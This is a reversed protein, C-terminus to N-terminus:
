FEQDPAIWEEELADAFGEDPNSDIRTASLVEEEVIRWSGEIDAITYNARYENLRSHTHGWHYVGGEVQWSAGTEFALAGEREFTKGLSCDLLEFRQVRAVAGEAEQYVLSGYIRQYLRDLLDGAVSKSLSDYVDKEERYDFARYINALLPELAARAAQEDLVPGDGRPDAMSVRGVNWALVGGGIALPFFTLVRRLSGRVAGFGLALLYVVILSLTPISVEIRAQTPPAPVNRFLDDLSLGSSHWTYKPEDENFRVMRHTGYGSVLAGVELSPIGEETEMIPNPPYDSWELKVVRPPKDCPYDIGFRLRLLARMGTRPFLPLLQVDPEPADFESFLPAVPVDDITVAISERFHAELVERLLDREVQYLENPSERPVDVVEDVFALNVMLNVRVGEDRITIRVDAHPGDQPDRTDPGSVALLLAAALIPGLRDPRGRPREQQEKTILSRKAANSVM